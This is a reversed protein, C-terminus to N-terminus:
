LALMYCVVMGNKLTHLQHNLPLRKKLLPLINYHFGNAADVYSDHFM